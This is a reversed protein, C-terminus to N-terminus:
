YMKFAREGFIDLQKKLTDYQNKADVYPKAQAADIGLSKAATEFDKIAYGLDQMVRNASKDQAQLNSIFSDIKKTETAITTMTGAALKSLKNLEDISALEVQVEGKYLKSLVNKEM